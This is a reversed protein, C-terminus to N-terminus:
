WFYKEVVSILIRLELFVSNCCDRNKPIPATLVFIFLDIFIFSGLVPVSFLGKCSPWPLDPTAWSLSPIPFAQGVNFLPMWGLAHIFLDKSLGPSQHLFKFLLCFM